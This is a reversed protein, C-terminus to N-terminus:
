VELNDILRTNGLYAALLIVLPKDHSTALELSQRDCIHLYDPRFGAKSLVEKAQLELM